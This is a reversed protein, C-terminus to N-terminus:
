RGAWFFRGGALSGRNDHASATEVTNEVCYADFVLLELASTRLSKRSKDPAASTVFLGPLKGKRHVRQYNETM